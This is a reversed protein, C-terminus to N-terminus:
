WVTDSDFSKMGIFESIDIVTLQLVPFAVLGHKM